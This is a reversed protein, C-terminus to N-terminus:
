DSRGSPYSRADKGFSQITAVANRSDRPVDGIECKPRAKEGLAAVNRIRGGEGSQEFSMIRDNAGNPERIRIRPFQDFRDLCRADSPENDHTAGAAEFDRGALLEEICL